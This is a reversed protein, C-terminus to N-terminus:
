DSTITTVTSLRRDILSHAAEIVYDGPLTRWGGDWVQWTREPLPVRATVTAGPEATVGAFGALWRVPREPELLTEATDTPSAYVQIVERGARGGTNRVTVVACGDEISLSEYSWTTYGVGHGFPFLPEVV